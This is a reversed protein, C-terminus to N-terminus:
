QCNTVMGVTNCTMFRGGPLNYIRNIPPVPEVNSFRPPPRQQGAMMGLGLLLAAEGRARDKAREQAALQDEYQRRQEMAQSKALDIQMRCQAYDTTGTVFGYRRCTLHESSGDGVDNSSFRSTGSDRSRLELVCEGFAPTKPKFGISACKAEYAGLDLGLVTNPFICSLLIVKVVAFRM